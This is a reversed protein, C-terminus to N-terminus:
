MRSIAAGALAMVLAFGAGIAAGMGHMRMVYDIAVGLVLTGWGLSATVALRREGVMVWERFLSLGALVSGFAMAGVWLAPGISLLVLSVAAVLAAAVGLAWTGALRAPTRDPSM